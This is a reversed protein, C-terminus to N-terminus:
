SITPVKCFVTTCKEHLFNIPTKCSTMARGRTRARKGRDTPRDLGVPNPLRARKCGATRAYVGRGAGFHADLEREGGERGEKEKAALGRAAM